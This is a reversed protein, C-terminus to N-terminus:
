CLNIQTQLRVLEYVIPSTNYANYNCYRLKSTIAVDRITQDCVPSHLIETLSINEFQTGIVPTMDFHKIEKLMGSLRLPIYHDTGQFPVAVENVMPLHKQTQTLLETLTASPAM